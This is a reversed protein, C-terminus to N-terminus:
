WIYIYIYIMIYGFVFFPGKKKLASIGGVVESCFRLNRLPRLLGGADSVLFTRSATQAWSFQGPPPHTLIVGLMHLNKPLMLVPQHNPVHSKNKWINPIDDDWSVFEYKESPYTLWWGSFISSLCCCQPRPHFYIVDLMCLRSSGIHRSFTMLTSLTPAIESNSSKLPFEDDFKLSTQFIISSPYQTSM